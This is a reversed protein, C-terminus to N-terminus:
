RYYINRLLHRMTITSPFIAQRSVLDKSADCQPYPTTTARENLVLTSENRRGLEIALMLGCPGGGAVVVQYDSDVIESM